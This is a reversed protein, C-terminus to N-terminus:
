PLMMAIPIILLGQGDIDGPDKFIRGEIRCWEARGGLTLVESVSNDPAMVDEVGALMMNLLTGGVISESATSAYCFVSVYLHRKTPLGRGQFQDTEEHEVLYM